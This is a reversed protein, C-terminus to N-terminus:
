QLRALARNAANRLKSALATRDAAPSISVLFHIPGKTDREFEPRLRGEFRAGSLVWLFYGGNCHPATRRYLASDRGLGDYRAVAKAACAEISIGIQTDDVSDGRGVYMDFVLRRRDKGETDYVCNWGGADYGRGPGVPEGLVAEADDRTLYDCPDPVENLVLGGDAKDTSEPKATSDGPAESPGDGSGSGGCATLVMLPILLYLARAMVKWGM